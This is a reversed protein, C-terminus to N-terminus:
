PRLIACVADRCLACTQASNPKQTEDPHANVWAENMYLSAAPYTGGLVERTGEITRMDILIKALNTALARSVTPETTMGGDIAGKQMAALFTNGAGVAVTTVDGPKLGARAALSLTLFNTSSGLGTVGLSHGKLDAMTKVKDAIRVSVLEVEGPARSFQVVSLAYKKHAQLDICHDYFGVVGQVEGALMATEAEVGAPEDMMAVDLGQEKFAGIQEALKAPLYIQKDMGGVMITVKQALAPVAFCGSVMIAAATALFLRRM